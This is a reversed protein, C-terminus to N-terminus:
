MAGKRKLHYRRKAETLKGATVMALCRGADRGAEKVTSYLNDSIWAVASFADGGTFFVVVWQWGLAGPSITCSTFRRIKERASARKRKVAM